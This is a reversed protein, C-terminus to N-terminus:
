RLQELRDECDMLALDLEFQADMYGDDYGAEAAEAIEAQFLHLLDELDEILMEAVDRQLVNDRIRDKVFEVDPTLDAM